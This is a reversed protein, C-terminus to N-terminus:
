GVWFLSFHNGDTNCPKNEGFSVWNASVFVCTLSSTIEENHEKSWCVRDKSGDVSTCWHKYRCKAALAQRGKIRSSYTEVPIFSTLGDVGVVYLM